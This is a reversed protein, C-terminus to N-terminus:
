RNSENSVEILNVLENMKRVSEVYADAAGQHYQVKEAYYEATNPNCESKAKEAILREQYGKTDELANDKYRRLEEIHQKIVYMLLRNHMRDGKAGNKGALKTAVEYSYLLIAGKPAKTM